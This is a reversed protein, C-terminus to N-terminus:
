FHEFASYMFYLSWFSTVWCCRSLSWFSPHFCNFIYTKPASRFPPLSASSKSRFNVFVVNKNQLSRPLFCSDRNQIINNSCSSFSSILFLFYWVDLISHNFFLCIVRARVADWYFPKSMTVISQWTIDSTILYTATSQDTALPLKNVNRALCVPLCTPPRTPLCAPLCDPMCQCVSLCVSLRKTHFSRKDEVSRTKNRRHTRSHTPIFIHTNAHTCVCVCVYVCMYMFVYVFWIVFQRRRGTM